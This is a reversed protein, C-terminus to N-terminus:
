SRVTASEPKSSWGRTANSAFLRNRALGAVLSPLDAATGLCSSAGIRLRPVLADARDAGM